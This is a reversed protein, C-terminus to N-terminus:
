TQLKLNFCEFYNQGDTSPCLTWWFIKETVYKECQMAYVQILIEMETKIQFKWIILTEVKKLQGELLNFEDRTKKWNDDM